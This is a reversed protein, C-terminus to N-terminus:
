GKGALYMLVAFGNMLIFFGTLAGIEIMTSKKRWWQRPPTSASMDTTRRTDDHFRNM